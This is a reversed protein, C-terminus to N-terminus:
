KVYNLINGDNSVVILASLLVVCVLLVNALMFYLEAKWLPKSVGFFTYTSQKTNTNAALKQPKEPIETECAIPINIIHVNWAKIHSMFDM